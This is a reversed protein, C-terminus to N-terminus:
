QHKKQHTKLGSESKAEFGCIPCELEAKEADQVNVSSDEYFRENVTMDIDSAKKWGMRVYRREDKAPVDITRGDKEMYIYGEAEPTAGVVKMKRNKVDERVRARLEDRDLTKPPTPDALANYYLDSKYSANPDYKKYREVKQLRKEKDMLGYHWLIYPSDVAYRYQMPPALGCHVPKNIFNLGYEPTIKYFRVNWFSLGQAFHEEDNWYNVIYFQWAIGGRKILEELGERTLSEDFFEDADMAVVWDCKPAIKKLLDEKIKPQYKGWERNDEYWEYGLKEILSISEKDLNNGVILVPDLRLRKFNQTLCEKLRPENPGVVMIGGIRM